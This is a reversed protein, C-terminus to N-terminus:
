MSDKKVWTRVDGKVCMNTLSREHEINESTNEWRTKTMNTREQIMNHFHPMVRHKYTGIRLSEFLDRCNQRASAPSCFTNSNYEFEEQIRFCCKASLFFHMPQFCFTIESILSERWALSCFDLLSKIEIAGTMTSKSSAIIEGIIRSLIVSVFLSLLLFYLSLVHLTFAISGQPM